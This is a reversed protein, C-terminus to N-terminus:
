QNNEARISSAILVAVSSVVVVGVMFSWTLWDYAWAILGLNGLVLPLLELWSPADWQRSVQAVRSGVANILLTILGVAAALALLSSSYILADVGTLVLSLWAAIVVSASLCVLGYSIPRATLALALLLLGVSGIFAQGFPYRRLDGETPSWEGDVSRRIPHVSGVAVLVTGGPIELVSGPRVSAIGEIKLQRTLWNGSLDLDWVTRWSSGGDTSEEVRKGITRICVDQDVSLCLERGTPLAGALDFQHSVPYWRVGEDFTVLQRTSPEDDYSDHSTDIAIPEGDVLALGTWSPDNSPTCASMLFIVLALLWLGSRLPKSRTPASRM